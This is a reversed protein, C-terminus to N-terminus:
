ADGRWEERMLGFVLSDRIGIHTEWEGRLHGEQKFGLSKLLAISAANDPDADGFIRRLKMAGFGHDLVLTVAERAIGKGWQDRRLIYGLEMVGTRKPVLIVWGLAEDDGARTIAWCLHGDDPRANWSIYAATEEPTKRAALTWWTMVKDDSLVKHLASADAETLQRLSLRASTLNPAPM